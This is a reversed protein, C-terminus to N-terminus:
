MGVQMYNGSPQKRVILNAKGVVKGSGRVKGFFSGEVSIILVDKAVIHAGLNTGGQPKSEWPAVCAAKTPKVYRGRAKLNSSIGM